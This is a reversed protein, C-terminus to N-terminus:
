SLRRLSANITPIRNFTTQKNQMLGMKLEKEIAVIFDAGSKKWM